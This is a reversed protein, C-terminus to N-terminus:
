GVLKTLLVGVAIWNFVAFLAFTGKGTAYSGVSCWSGSIVNAILLAITMGESM